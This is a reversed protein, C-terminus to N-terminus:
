ESIVENVLQKAHEIQEPTGDIFVNRELSTDGPPLRLPIVQIRAGSNAQMSKITEGGKGIVLGVKNNAVKMQVQVVGPQAPYRRPVAGSGGEVDV